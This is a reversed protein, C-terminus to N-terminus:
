TRLQRAASHDCRCTFSWSKDVEWAGADTICSMSQHGSRHSSKCKGTVLRSGQYLLTVMSPWAFCKFAEIERKAPFTCFNPFRRVTRGPCSPLSGLVPQRTDICAQRLIAM